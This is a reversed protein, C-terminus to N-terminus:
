SPEQTYSVLATLEVPGTNKVRISTGTALYFPLSYFYTNEDALTIESDLLSTTVGNLTLLQATGTTGDTNNLIIVSKLIYSSGSGPGSVTDSSSVPITLAESIFNDAWESTSGIYIYTITVYFNGAGSMNATVGIYNQTLIIQSNSYVQSVINELPGTVPSSNYIPILNAGVDSSSSSFKVTYTSSGVLDVTAYYSLNKVIYKGTGQLQFYQVAFQGAGAATYLFTETFEQAM